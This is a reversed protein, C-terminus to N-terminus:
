SVAAMGVAMADALTFAAARGSVALMAEPSTREALALADMTPLLLAMGSGTLIGAALGDASRLGMGIVGSVTRGTTIRGGGYVTPPSKEEGVTLMHPITIVETIDPSM